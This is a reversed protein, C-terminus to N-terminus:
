TRRHSLNAVQPRNKIPRASSWPFEKPTVVLGARVPNMEIYGKIRQFESDDRVLHDYSEDQWFPQGTRDLIRNRERATFRKLSHMLKSVEIHPTILLHVHNAMVVFAHLDVTDRRYHLAEVIMKAIEPQRLYMPGTRANDLLRDMAVFAEGSTPATPYARGAPFSGELHWTLFIPRGIVHIHPLRRAHTKV